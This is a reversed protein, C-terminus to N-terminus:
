HASAQWKRCNDDKGTFIGAIMMSNSIYDGTLVFLDPELAIVQDAYRRMETRTMYVGAHIDTLHVVRVVRGFPLTLEQVEYAKSAYVAGYGSLSVL